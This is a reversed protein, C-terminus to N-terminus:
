SDLDINALRISKSSARIGADPRIGSNNLESISPTKDFQSKIFRYISQVSNRNHLVANFNVNSRFYDPYRNQLQKVNRIVRDFSNNGSKDVRYGHGEKDGDLSILLHFDNEVLYDMYRDLLMANTTMSYFVKRSLGLDEIYKVAEEIFPMNM